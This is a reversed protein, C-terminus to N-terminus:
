TPKLKHLIESPVHWHMKRATSKELYDRIYIATETSDLTGTLCVAGVGGAARDAFTVRYSKGCYPATEGSLITLTRLDPLLSDRTEATYRFLRHTADHSSALEGDPTSLRM